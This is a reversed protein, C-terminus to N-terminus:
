LRDSGSENRVLRSRIQAQMTEYYAERERTMRSQRAKFAAVREQIDARASSTSYAKGSVAAPQVAPMAVTAVAIPEPVPAAVDNEASVSLPAPMQAKQAGDSVRAAMPHAAAVQQVFALTQAVLRDREDKWSIM